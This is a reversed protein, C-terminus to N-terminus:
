TLAEVYPQMVRNVRCARAAAMLEDITGARRRRYDRLAEIAVDLGVTSRHKFCDAVTRAPTTMRVPVGDVDRRIVGFKLAAGSWRIVRLPPWDLRPARATRPIAIWVDPPNQTTLEYIRLASLLCVIGADVRAAAHVISEHEGIERNPLAYLGRGVRALEGAAVWRALQARPVGRAELDRARLVGKAFATVLARNINRQPAV